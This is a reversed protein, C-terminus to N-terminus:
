RSRRRPAPSRVRPPWCPGGRPGPAARRRFGRTHRARPEGPRRVVHCSLDRRRDRPHVEVVLGAEVGAQDREVASRVLAPEPGVGQEPDGEGRRVRRGDRAALFQEDVQVSEPAFRLADSLGSSAATAGIMGIGMTLIIEPPRCAPPLRSM